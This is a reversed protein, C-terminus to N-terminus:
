DTYKYNIDYSEYKGHELVDEILYYIQKKKKGNTAWISNKNLNFAIKILTWTIGSDKFRYKDFYPTMEFYIDLSTQHYESEYDLKFQRTLSLVLKEEGYENTLPNYKHGPHAEVLFDCSDCEIDIDLFFYFANVLAYADMKDQTMKMLINKTENIPYIM